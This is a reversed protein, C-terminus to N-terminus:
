GRRSGKQDGDLCNLLYTSVMDQTTFAEMSDIICIVVHSFNIAAKVQEGVMADVETKVRSGPKIGATDM